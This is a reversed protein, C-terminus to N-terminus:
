SKLKCVQQSLTKLLIRATVMVGNDYYNKGKADTTFMAGGGGCFGFAKCGLHKAFAQAISDKARAEETGGANCGWFYIECDKLVTGKKIKKVDNTDFQRWAKNKTWFDEWEEKTKGADIDIDGYIPVKKVTDDFDFWDGLDWGSNTRVEREGTKRIYTRKDTYGGLGIAGDWAHSYIDIRKINKHNNIAKWVDDDTPIFYIKKIDGQKMLFDYKKLRGEACKQLASGLDHSSGGSPPIYGPYIWGSAYLSLYTNAM